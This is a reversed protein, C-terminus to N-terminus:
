GRAIGAFIKGTNFDTTGIKDLFIAGGDALEFREPRATKTDTFADAEHGLLILIPNGM